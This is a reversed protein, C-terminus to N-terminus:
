SLCKKRMRRFVGLGEGRASNQRGKFNRFGKRSRLIGRYTIPQNRQAQNKKACFNEKRIKTQCSKTRKRIATKANSNIVLDEKINLAELIKFYDPNKVKKTPHHLDNLFIPVNIATATGDVILNETEDIVVNTSEKILNVIKETRTFKLPVLMILNQLIKDAHVKSLETPDTTERTDLNEQNQKDTNDNPLM